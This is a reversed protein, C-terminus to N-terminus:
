RPGASVYQNRRRNKAEYMALDADHLVAEVPRTGDATATGISARVRMQTGAAEIPQQVATTVRAVFDPLDDPVDATVVAFEDGGLRAVLDGDRVATRLRQAVAVLVADGAAHGYRDNIPKFEDLDILLIGVDAPTAALHQQFMARNALGTLPDHFAMHQLREALRDRQALAEHLEAVKGDIATLLRANDTFATLQRVVVFVTSICVGAIAIWAQAILGETALVGIMLSFTAGIAAYPLLSYPRRRSHRLAQPNERARLLEVRASAALLVVVASTCASEWELHGHDILLPRAGRTVGEVACAIIGLTGAWFTFPTSPSLLLKIGAFVALLFSTPGILIQLLQGSGTAGGSGSAMTFYCGFTAAAVMVTATDLWFRLRERGSALGLPSTLLMYVVTVTGILIAVSYGPGGLVAAVGGPDRTIIPVQTVVGVAFILGAFGMAGWVRRHARSLGPTHVLRWGTVSLLVEVAGTVPWLVLLQVTRGGLGSGLIAVSASGVIALVLLVPDIRRGPSAAHPSM